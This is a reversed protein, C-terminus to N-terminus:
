MTIVKQARLIGYLACTIYAILMMATALLGLGMVHTWQAVFKMLYVLLPTTAAIAIGAPLMPKFVLMEDGRERIGAVIIAAGLSPYWAISCYCATLVPPMEFLVPVLYAVMFPVAFNLSSTGKKRKPAFKMFERYLTASILTASLLTVFLLPLSFFDSLLTIANNLLVVTAFVMGFIVWSMSAAINYRYKELKIALDALKGVDDM